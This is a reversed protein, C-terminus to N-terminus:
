GAMRAAALRANERLRPLAEAPIKGEGILREVADRCDRFHGSRFAAISFEELVGYDYIWSEIMLGRRPEPLTIAHRGILYGHHPLRHTRTYCLAGHLPEAREPEAEYAKLYAGIVEADPADLAETLRAAQHLSQAVEPQWGGMAIRRGFLALAREREGLRMRAMALYYTYRGRIFLDSEIELAQELLAADDSDQRPNRRRVGDSGAEMRLGPAEGVRNAAAPAAVFEHLVGRYTFLLKNSLLQPRWFKYRGDRIEIQYYPADLGQKFRAPDLAPDIVLVDDADLVLAYDIDPRQRLAALSESRNWAFDRWPAARVEGPVGHEALWRRIVDVTADTSGTDIALVYDILPRASDLARRVVAEENRVIMALGISTM